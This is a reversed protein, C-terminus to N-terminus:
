VRAIAGTFYGVVLRVGLSTVEGTLIGLFFPLSRHFATGGRLAARM